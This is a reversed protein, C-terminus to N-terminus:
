RSVCLKTTYIKNGAFRLSVYYIGISLSNVNIKIMKNKSNIREFNIGYYKGYIDKATIEKIKGADPPIKITVFKDAPNPFISLQWESKIEARSIKDFGRYKRIEGDFGSIFFNGDEDDFAVGRPNMGFEELYFNEDTLGGSLQMIESEVLLSNEFHTCLQILNGNMEELGRPGAFIDCPNEEIGVVQLSIPDLRYILRDQERNSAYLIDGVLALGIPYSDSGTAPHQTQNILEGNIGSFKGIFGGEGSENNMATVFIDGNSDIAIDTFYKRNTQLTLSDILSLKRDFIKIKNTYFDCAYLKDNYLDIGYPTGGITRSSLLKGETRAVISFYNSITETSSIRMRILSNDSISYPVKWFYGGDKKIIEIKSFSVGGDTSLEFLANEGGYWILEQETGATFEEGGSPFIIQNNTEESSFEIQWISRGHTAARLFRKGTLFKSDEYIDIDNVAVMPFKKGYRFWSIGGNFSAYVGIDTAVFIRDENERDIEIDNVPIKPLGFSRDDWTKGKDFSVAFRVGDFTSFSAFIKNQESYSTQIDSVFRKESLEFVIKNWSIGGDNTFFIEGSSTGIWIVNSDIKSPEVASILGVELTFLKQWNPPDIEDINLKWLSRGGHYLNEGSKDMRLPSDFLSNFGSRPPLEHSINKSIGKAIDLYYINGFQTQIFILDPNSSSVQPEFGDGPGIKFWNVSSFRNTLNNNDQTGGYNANAFSEDIDMGYFQTIFLGNNIPFFDKGGNTSKYMGGDNGLYVVNPNSPAFIACHQDVHIDEGDIRSIASFSVGNESRFLQVGGLLVKNDDRPDIEIFNNYFGQDNIGFIQSNSNVALHWNKGGDLSKLVFANGSPSEEVLAYAIETNEAFQASIRGLESGFIDQKSIVKDLTKFGDETLYAGSHETSILYKLSNKPDISIDTIHQKIKNEWSIGGNSSYYFGPDSRFGGAIIIDSNLPHVYIKNFSAVNRLGISFWTKGSNTSKFIGRGSYADLNFAGEGSAAYLIEPNNQDIAIAGFNLTERDDFIAQWSDGGNTSKWIGGSAAAIFVIDENNPHVAISRIRGGINGPGLQEWTYQQQLLKSKRSKELQRLEKKISQSYKSKIEARNKGNRKFKFYEGRFRPDAEESVLTQNALFIALIAIALKM